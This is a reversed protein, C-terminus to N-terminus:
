LSGLGPIEREPVYDLDDAPEIVPEAPGNLARDQKRQERRAQKEMQKEKRQQEKQRKQFTQPGRGAM